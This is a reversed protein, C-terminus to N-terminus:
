VGDGGSTDGVCLQGAEATGRPRRKRGLAVAIALGVLAHPGAQPSHAAGCGGSKPAVVEVPDATEARSGATADFESEFTGSDEGPEGGSDDAVPQDCASTSVAPFALLGRGSQNNPSVTGMPTAAAYLEALGVQATAGSRAMQVALAGAVHPCAASTGDFDPLVSTEVGSPAVLDPKTRGDWTPGRSSYKAVPGTEWKDWAVAGVAVAHECQAPDILTGAVVTPWLSAAGTVALRVGLGAKPPTTGPKVRVRVRVVGSKPYLYTVVEQPTQGGDQTSKSAALPECDGTANACVYLDLDLSTTPYADWDLEIEAYEGKVGLLEHTAGPVDLWGDSNADAWAGLWMAHDAENGASALWVMGAESAKKMLECPKGTNDAFSYGTVWGASDTAVTIGAKLLKPLLAQLQALTAASFVSIGAGPAMDAVVEACATGHVEEDDPSQYPSKGVINPLEGSEIAASLGHWEDDIVALTSGSGSFGMCHLLNAATQEVGQSTAPGIKGVKAWPLRATRLGPLVRALEAVERLPLWVLWADDGRVEVQWGPHQVLPARWARTVAADSALLEVLVRDGQLLPRGLRRVFPRIAPDALLRAPNLRAADADVLLRLPTEVPSRAPWAAIAPTASLAVAAVVAVARACTSCFAEAVAVQLRSRGGLPRASPARVEHRSVAPGTCLVGLGIRGRMRWRWDCAACRRGRRIAGRSPM